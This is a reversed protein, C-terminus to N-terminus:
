LLSAKALRAESWASQQTLPKGSESELRELLLGMEDFAALDDLCGITRECIKWWEQWSWGVRSWGWNSDPGKPYISFLMQRLVGGTDQGRAMAFEVADEVAKTKVRHNKILEALVSGLGGVPPANHLCFAIIESLVKSQSDVPINMKAWVDVWDKPKQAAQELVLVQLYRNLDEQHVKGDDSVVKKEQVEGMLAYLPDSSSFTQWSSAKRIAKRDVSEEEADGAPSVPRKMANIMLEPKSTLNKAQM